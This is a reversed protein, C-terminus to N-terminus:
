SVSGKRAWELGALTLRGDELMHRVDDWDWGKPLNLIKAFERTDIDAEGSAIRRTFDEFTLKM